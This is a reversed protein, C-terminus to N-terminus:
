FDSEEEEEVHMGFADLEDDESMDDDSDTEEDDEGMFLEDEETEELEDDRFDDMLIIILHDRM